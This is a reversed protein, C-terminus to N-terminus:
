ISNCHKVVAAPLAGRLEESQEMARMLITRVRPKLITWLNLLFALLNSVILNGFPHVWPSQVM